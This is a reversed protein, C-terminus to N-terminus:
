CRCRKKWTKYYDEIHWRCEYYRVVTLAQAASAVPETTLLVWQLPEAQLPANMEEALIANAGLPGGGSTSRAPAM